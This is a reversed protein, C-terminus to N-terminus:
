QGDNLKELNDKDIAGLQKLAWKIAHYTLKDEKTASHDKMKISLQNALNTLINLHAREKTHFAWKLQDEPINIKEITM